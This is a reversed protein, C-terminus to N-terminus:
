PQAGIKLGFISRIIALTNLTFMLKFVLVNRVWNKIIEWCKSSGVILTADNCM